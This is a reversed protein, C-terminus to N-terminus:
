RTVTDPAGTAQLYGGHWSNDEGHEGALNPPGANLRYEVTWFGTVEHVRRQGDTAIRLLLNSLGEKGPLGWLGVGTTCADGPVLSQCRYGDFEATTTRGPNADLLPSRTVGTRAPGTWFEAGWQGEAVAPAAASPYCGSERNTACLRDPMGHTAIVYDWGGRANGTAAHVRTPAMRHTIRDWSEVIRTLPAGKGGRTQTHRAAPGIVFAAAITDDTADPTGQDDITVSGSLPLAIRDDGPTPTYRPAAHPSDIPYYVASIAPGVWPLARGAAAPLRQSYSCDVRFYFASVIACGNEQPDNFTGAVPSTVPEAGVAGAAALCTFGLAGCAARRLATLPGYV